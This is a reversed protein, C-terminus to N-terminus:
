GKWTLLEVSRKELDTPNMCLSLCKLSFLNACFLFLFCIFVFGPWALFVPLLPTVTCLVRVQMNLKQLHERMGILM